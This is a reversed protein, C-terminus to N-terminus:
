KQRKLYATILASVLAITVLVIMLLDRSLANSSTYVTDLLPLTSTM